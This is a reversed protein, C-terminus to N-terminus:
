EDGQQDLFSHSAQSPCALAHTQNRDDQAEESYGIGWELFVDNWAIPPSVLITSGEDRVM